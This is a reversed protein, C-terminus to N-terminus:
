HLPNSNGEELPDKRGLSRVCTEQMEQMPLCTKKVSLWRPLGTSAYRVVGYMKTSIFCGYIFRKLGYVFIEIEPIQQALNNKLYRVTAAEQCVQLYMREHTQLHASARAHSGFWVAVSWDYPREM